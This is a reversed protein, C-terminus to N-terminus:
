SGPKKPKPTKKKKQNTPKKPNKQPSTPNKTQSLLWQEKENQQALSKVLVEHMGPLKGIVSHCGQVSLNQQKNTQKNTQKNFCPKVYGLIADFERCLWSDGQDESAEV